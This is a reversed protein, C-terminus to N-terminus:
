RKLKKIRKRPPNIKPEAYLVTRLARFACEDDVEIPIDWIIRGDVMPLNSIFNLLNKENDM